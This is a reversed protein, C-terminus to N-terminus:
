GGGGHLLAPPTGSQRAWGPQLPGEVTWAAVGVTALLALAALAGWVAPAHAVGEGVRYALFASLVGGVAALDLLLFLRNTTDSGTGLAHLLACLWGAYMLRHLWTWAHRPLKRAPWSSLAVAAYLYVSVVGLGLWAPRYASTFPLLADRPGLHAFPDIVASAAHVVAFVCAVAALRVHLGELFVPLAAPMAARLVGVVVVASLLLLSVEGASRDLYWLPGAAAPLVM